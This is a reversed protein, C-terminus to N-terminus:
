LVLVCELVQYLIERLYLLLTLFFIRDFFVLLIKFGPSLPGDWM